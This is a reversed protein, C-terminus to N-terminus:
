AGNDDSLDGVTVHGSEQSWKQNVVKGRRAARMFDNDVKKDQPVKPSESKSSKMTSEKPNRNSHEAAM